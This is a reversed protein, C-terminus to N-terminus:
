RPYVYIASGLANAPSLTMGSGQGGGIYTLQGILGDSGKVTYNSGGVLKATAMKGGAIKLRVDQQNRASLTVTVEWDFPNYFSVMPNPGNPVPVLLSSTLFNGSSFWAFDGGTAPPAAPTPAASPSASPAASASATPAPTSPAVPTTSLVPNQVGAGIVSRVGAVIPRNASVVVTYMGEPVGLFPFQIVQQANMPAALETVDGALSIAKIKVEAAETGPVLVRITSELDSMVAGNEADGANGAIYVGTMVQTTSAAASPNIWEVGSPVLTRTVSQQLTALLAGGSSSVHVVPAVVDRAYGAISIIRQTRPPVQIGDSKLMAVPGKEGFIELKATSYVETPNEIVLLTTRGVDTAGGVLWMDNSPEACAVTALGGLSEGTGVQVQTGAVLPQDTSGTVAPVTILTPAGLSAPAKNEPMALTMSSQQTSTSDTVVVPAGNSLYSLTASKDSNVQLLPGPCIISQASPLPTVKFTPAYGELQPLPVILLAGVVAVAISAGLVGGVGTLSARVVNTKKTM